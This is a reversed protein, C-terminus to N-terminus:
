LASLECARRMSKDPPACIAHRPVEDAQVRVIDAINAFMANSDITVKKKRKNQLHALQSAQAALLQEQQVNKFAQIEITKSAQSVLMRMPRSVEELDVLRNFQATLHHRNQPTLVTADDPHQFRPAQPTQPTKPTVRQLNTAKMVQSSRLVKRPDWPYIGTASWGARINFDTMGENRAKNYIDLFLNKKMAINDSLSALDAIADRYRSKVGSFPCRTVIGCFGPSFNFQLASRNTAAATECVNSYVISLPKSNLLM